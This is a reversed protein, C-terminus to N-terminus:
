AAAEAGGDPARVMVSLTRPGRYLGPTAPSLLRYVDHAHEGHPNGERDQRQSFEVELVRVVCAAPLVQPQTDHSEAWWEEDDPELELPALTVRGAELEMEEVRGLGLTAGGLPQPLRYEVVDNWQIEEPSVGVAPQQAAAAAVGTPQSVNLTRKAIWLRETACGRRPSRLATARRVPPAALVQQATLPAPGRLIPALTCAGCACAVGPVGGTSPLGAAARQM